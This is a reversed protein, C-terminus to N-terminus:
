GSGCCTRVFEIQRRNAVEAMRLPFFDFAHFGGRYVDLTADPWRAALMVSDDLLPDETGVTLLAPPLGSLDAFLPSISPDRRAEDDRDPLLQDIHWRITPTSLIM